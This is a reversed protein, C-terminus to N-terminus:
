DVIIEAKILKIGIYGLSLFVFLGIFSIMTIMWEPRCAWM